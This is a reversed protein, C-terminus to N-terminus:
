SLRKTIPEGRRTNQHVVGRGVQIDRARKTRPPPPGIAINPAVENTLTLPCVLMTDSLPIHFKRALREIWEGKPVPREVPGACDPPCETETLVEQSVVVASGPGMAYRVTANADSIKEPCKQPSAESM